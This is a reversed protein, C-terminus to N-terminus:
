ILDNKRAFELLRARYQKRDKATLLPEESPWRKELANMEIRDLRRSIVQREQERIKGLNTKRHARDRENIEERNAVRYQRQQELIKERNAWYDHRKRENISERNAKRWRRIHDRNARVWRRNQEDIKEHNAERYCRRQERVRERNAKHWHVALGGRREAKYHRWRNQQARVLHDILEM